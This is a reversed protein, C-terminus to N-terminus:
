FHLKRRFFLLDRATKPDENTLFKQLLQDAMSKLLKKKDDASEITTEGIMTKTDLEPVVYRTPMMHTYNIHKLFCKVRTRKEVKAESMKRTIKRPPREIGVVLAHGFSRQRTGQDYATLVVGKQGAHRGNLIVVVRGQKFVKVQAM